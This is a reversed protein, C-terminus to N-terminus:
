RGEFFQAFARDVIEAQSVGEAEAAERVRECWEVDVLWTQRKNTRPGRPDVRRMKRARWLAAVELLDERIANLESPTQPSLDIEPGGRPLITPTGRHVPYVELLKLRNQLTSRAIGTQRAIDRQSRGESVLRQLEEDTIDPPM